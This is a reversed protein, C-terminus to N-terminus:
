SGAIWGSNFGLRAYRCRGFVSQPPVRAMARGAKPPVRQRTKGRRLQAVNPEVLAFPQIYGAYKMFRRRHGGIRGDKGTEEPRGEVGSLVLEGQSTALTGRSQGTTCGDERDRSALEHFIRALAM